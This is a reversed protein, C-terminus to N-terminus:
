RRTWRKRPDPKTGEGAAERDAKVIRELIKATVSTPHGQWRVIWDRSLVLAHPVRRVGVANRMRDHKDIGLSPGLREVRVGTEDKIHDIGDEFDLRDENSVAIVAVAGAHDHGLEAFHQLHPVCAAVHTEWFLIVVVPARAPAGNMWRKVVIDPGQDGRLDDADSMTGVIEPFTRKESPEEKSREAANVDPDFPEALLKKLAAPTGRSNLGVYRVAGQKDILVNVPRRYVGLADCYAGKRDIVVPFKPPRRELFPQVRDAGDPTHLFIVELDDGAFDALMRQVRAPVKRGSGSKSNWSQLLVVKGRQDTWRLPETGAGPRVWVLDETFKPPAFGILEDLLKRDTKDLRDLWKKNVPPRSSAEPKNAAAPPAPSPRSRQASAPAAAAVILGGLLIAIANRM